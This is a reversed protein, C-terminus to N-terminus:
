DFKGHRDSYLEMKYLRKLAANMGRRFWGFQLMFMIFRTFYHALKDQWDMTKWLNHGEVTSLNMFYLLFPKLRPFNLLPTNSSAERMMADMMYIVTEDISRLWFLAMSRSISIILGPDKILGLNFRDQVGLFRGCIAILHLAGDLNEKGHFRVRNGYIGMFLPGIMAFSVISVDFQSFRLPPNWKIIKCLEEFEPFRWHSEDVDKKIAAALESYWKPFYIGDPPIKPNPPRGFTRHMECVREMEKFFSSSDDETCGFNWALIAKM